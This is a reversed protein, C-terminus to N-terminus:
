SCRGKKPTLVAYARTGVSCRQARPKWKGRPCGILLRNQGRTIWRFSRRDFSKKKAVKRECYGQM